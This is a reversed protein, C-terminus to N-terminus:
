TNLFMLIKLCFLVSSSARSSRTWTRRWEEGGGHAAPVQGGNGVSSLGGLQISVEVSIHLSKGRLDETGEISRLSELNLEVLLSRMVSGDLLLEVRVVFGVSHNGDKTVM